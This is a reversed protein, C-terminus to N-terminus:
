ALGDLQRRGARTRTAWRLLDVLVDAAVPKVLHFPIHAWRSRSRNVDGDCGTIAVMVPRPRTAALHNAVEWGDMGPMLLDLLVVDPPAEAAMKLADPGNYATRVPYGKLALITALSDAADPNDDVILVSLSRSDAM